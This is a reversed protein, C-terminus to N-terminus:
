GNSHRTKGNPFLKCTKNNIHDSLDRQLNFIEIKYRDIVSQLDSNEDKLLKVKDELNAIRELKKTRCKRAANRNKERRRALRALEKESKDSLSNSPSALEPIPNSVSTSIKSNISHLHTPLLKKTNTPSIIPSPTSFSPPSAIQQPLVNKNSEESSLQNTYRHPLTSELTQKKLKINECSTNRFSTSLNIPASCQVDGTETYPSVPTLTVISPIPTATPWLNAMKRRQLEILADVFGKAYAEQDCYNSNSNPLYVPTPIPTLPVFIRDYEPSALKILNGTFEPSPLINTTSVISSNSVLGSCEIDKLIHEKFGVRPVKRSQSFDLSLKKRDM